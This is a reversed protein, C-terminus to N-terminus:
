SMSASNRLIHTLLVTSDNTWIIPNDGARRCGMIQVMSPKNDILRWAVYKWSIKNPIWSNGNLSICKLIDDAFFAAMKDRGWHTLCQIFYIHICPSKMLSVSIDGYIYLQLWTGWMKDYMITSEEVIMCVNLIGNYQQYIHLSTGTFWSMRECSNVGMMHQVAYLLVLPYALAQIM